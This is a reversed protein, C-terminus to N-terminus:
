QSTPEDEEAKSEVAKETATVATPKKPKNKNWSGTICTGQGRWWENVDEISRYEAGRTQSHHLMTCVRCFFKTNVFEGTGKWQFYENYKDDDKDLEHLYAALEKPGNFHDVHIFSKHPAARAYDEPRAGMAIPLIDHGLGNVFFKETIYDKCNSNEFALYFKYDTNLMNFCKTSEARPCRHTGCAGYIDVEIYKGLERAYELRGNRAGCNSVFWAVKKTKNVAFNYNQDIQKVNENYYQWREYPAVVTSDTRYTATWNFVNKQRFTQTHLPCELLYLMWVQDLPRPITPMSFHDKYLILDANDADARNSSIVCSSVPCKEKLFVGRGPKLGGWSSAGNWLLIKKLPAESDDQNNPVSDPVFMLQDPIRDEKPAEEPWVPPLASDRINKKPDLEALYHNRGKIHKKPMLEGDVMYWPKEENSPIHIDEPDLPALRDLALPPRAPISEEEVESDPQDYAPDVQSPKDSSGEDSKSPEAVLPERNAASEPVAMRAASEEALKRSLIDQEGKAKSPDSTSGLGTKYIRQEINVFLLIGSVACALYLFLRRPSLRRM